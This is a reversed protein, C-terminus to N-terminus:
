PRRCGCCANEGLVYKMLRGTALRPPLDGPLVLDAGEAQRAVYQEQMPWTQTEFQRRIDDEDRARDFRDRALRRALCEERDLDIYVSHTLLRRVAALHLAYLGEVIVMREPGVAVPEPLRRHSKFCYRPVQITRGRVLAAIDEAFRGLDLAEPEDFNVLAPDLSPQESLDRYYRDMSIFAVGSVASAAALHRALSSKGSCSPGAIGIVFRPEM